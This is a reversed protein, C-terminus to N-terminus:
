QRVIEFKGGDRRREWTGVISRSPLGLNELTGEIEYDGAEITVSWDDTDIAVDDIVINDTGPNITGSVKKGDWDLVILVFDGLEENSEWEGIWSGKLPHGEQASASGFLLLGATLIFAKSLVNKM